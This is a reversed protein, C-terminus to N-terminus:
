PAPRRADLRFSLHNRGDSRRYRLNRSLARIMHWGFGGEPLDERAAAPHPVGAPLVGGPMPAGQDEIQCLLDARQRRLSVRIVGDGGAYAHEVINNLAEALVIQAVGRETEPMARLVPMDFLARLGDRVAMPDARIVIRAQDAAEQPVLRRLSDGPM